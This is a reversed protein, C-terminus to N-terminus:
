RVRLKRRRGARRPRDGDLARRDPPRYSAQQSAGAGLGNGCGMPMPCGCGIETGGGFACGSLYDLEDTEQQQQSFIFSVSLSM